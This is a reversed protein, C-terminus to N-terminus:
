KVSKTPRDRFDDLSVGLADAVACASEWSPQNRGQELQAIGATTMGAEKALESQSLGKEARIAKLRDCFAM